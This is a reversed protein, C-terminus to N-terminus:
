RSAETTVAIAERFWPKTSFRSQHRELATSLSAATSYGARVLTTRAEIEIQAPYPDSQNLISAAHASKVVDALEVRADRGADFALRAAKGRIFLVSLHASNNDPDNAAGKRALAAAEHAYDAAMGADGSAASVDALKELAISMRDILLADSPNEALEREVMSRSVTYHEWATENDVLMLACDGLREHHLALDSAHQRNDPEAEQFSAFVDLGERFRERALEIRGEALLLDGIRRQAIALNRLTNRDDPSEVLVERIAETATEYAAMAGAPNGMRRELAGLQLALAITFRRVRPSDPFRAAADAAADLGASYSSRAADFRGTAKLLDGRARQAMALLVPADQPADPMVQLKEAIALAKESSDLAAATDGVSGITRLGQVDALRTYAVVLDTALGPDGDLQEAVQDLHSIGSQLLALRAPHAGDLQAVRDYIDSVMSRALQRLRDVTDETITLQERYRESAAQARQAQVISVTTGGIMALVCAAAAAVAVRNRRVFRSTRYSLTDPRATVPLGRLIRKLDDALHDVSPYRREPEKRMATMVVADLDAWTARQSQRVDQGTRTRTLSLSAPESECIRRALEVPNQRDSGVWPNSGSLLEYLMVGLSFVDTAISVTEGRLQEPSAYLPTLLHRGTATADPAAAGLMKAIGFDLVTPQGEADVLVNAPKLDRHVVLRRHASTVASLVPLMLRIVARPGLANARCYAGIPEGDVYPMVLYPIRGETEGGDILSAINPHTLSALVRRERSFREILEPTAMSRLTKVAVLQEFDEEARRALYVEGMGGTGLLRVITYPGIRKPESQGAAASRADTVRVMADIPPTELFSGARSGASLLQKVEALLSTNGGCRRCLWGDRESEPVGLAEHFLTELLDSM